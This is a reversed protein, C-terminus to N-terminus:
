ATVSPRSDLQEIEPPVPNFTYKVLGHLFGLGHAVHMSPFIAWVVPVAAAGETHGVRAAEIGTAAAYLLVCAPLAPTLGPVLLLALAASLGLFPVM